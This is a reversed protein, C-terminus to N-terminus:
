ATAVGKPAIHMGNKLYPVDASAIVAVVPIM